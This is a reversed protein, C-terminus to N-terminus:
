DNDVHLIQGTVKSVMVAIRGDDSGELGVRWTPEGEDSDDEIRLITGGYEDIAIVGAQEM